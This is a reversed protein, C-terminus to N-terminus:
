RVAGIALAANAVVSYIVALMVFLSGLIVPGPIHRCIRTAANGLSEFHNWRGSSKPLLCKRRGLASMKMRMISMGKQQCNQRRASSASSLM